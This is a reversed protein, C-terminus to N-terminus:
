MKKAVSDIIEDADEEPIDMLLPRPIRNLRPLVEPALDPKFFNFFKRSHYEFVSPEFTPSWLYDVTSVNIQSQQRIETHYFLSWRRSVKARLSQTTINIPIIQKGRDEREDMEGAPEIIPLGEEKQIDLVSSVPSLRALVDPALDAKIFNFADAFNDQFVKIPSFSRTWHYCATSQSTEPWQEVTHILAQYVNPFNEKCIIWFDKDGFITKINVLYGFDCMSRYIPYKDDLLYRAVKMYAHAYPTIDTHPGHEEINELDLSHLHKDFLEICAQIFCTEGYRNILLDVCQQYESFHSVKSWRTFLIANLCLTIALLKDQNATANILNYICRAGEHVDKKSSYSSSDVIDEFLMDKKVDFGADKLMLYTNINGYALAYFAPNRDDQDCLSADAGKELLWQVCSKFGSQACYHLLTLGSTSASNLNSVLKLWKLLQNQKVPCDFGQLLVILPTENTANLANIDGGLQIIQEFDSAFKHKALRHLLTEKELNPINIQHAFTQNMFKVLEDRGIFSYNGQHFQMLITNDRSDLRNKDFEPLSFLRSFTELHEKRTQHAFVHELVNEQRANLQYITQNLEKIAYDMLEINCHKVAIHLLSNGRADMNLTAAGHKILAQAIDNKHHIVAEALPTNGVTSQWASLKRNIVRGNISAGHSLLLELVEVSKVQHLPLFGVLNAANPDAGYALLCAVLAPSQRMAKFLPPNNSEEEINPSFGNNLLYILLDIDNAKIVMDIVRGQWNPESSVEFFRQELWQTLLDVRKYKLARIFLFKLVEIREKYVDLVKKLSSIDDLLTWMHYLLKTKYSSGFDKQPSKILALQFPTFGDLNSRNLLFQYDDTLKYFFKEMSHFPNEEMAMVLYHLVNNNNSDLSAEKGKILEYLEAIVKETKYAADYLRLFQHFLSEISANSTHFIDEIPEDFLTQSPSLRDILIHYAEQISKFKEEDGQPRDPHTQVALQHYAKKIKRASARPSIGLKKYYSVLLKNKNKKM